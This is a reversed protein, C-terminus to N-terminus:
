KISELMRRVTQKEGAIVIHEINRKAGPSGVREGAKNFVGIQSGVYRKFDFDLIEVHGRKSAIALLEDRSLWSENNYSLVITEAKVNKVLETLANAMAPKSNFASRNTDTRVDLRKNAIGYTSPEDWRVLTEWIHYNGLYNHQNYPPDIYILKIKGHYHKQLIKLVELNDGEIFVNKTVEWDKSRGPEPKLTSTTPSQAVRLATQKGSWFLGFRETSTSVDEALLEQLKIVDIKGDVIAEPVLKALQEALETQFNPSASLTQNIDENM